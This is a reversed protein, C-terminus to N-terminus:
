GDDQLIIFKLSTSVYAVPTPMVVPGASILQQTEVGASILPLIDRLRCLCLYCTFVYRKCIIMLVSHVFYLFSEKGTNLSYHWQM